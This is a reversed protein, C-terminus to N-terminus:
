NNLFSHLHAEVVSASCHFKKNSNIDILQVVNKPKGPNLDIIKLRKKGSIIIQGIVDKGFMRVSVKRSMANDPIPSTIDNVIVNAVNLIASIRTVFENDKFSISGIKLSSIGFKSAVSNLAMDIEKRILPLNTKDFKSIKKM